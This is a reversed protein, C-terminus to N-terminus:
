FAKLNPFRMGVTFVLTLNSTTLYSPDLFTYGSSWNFQTKAYYRSGNYGANLTFHGAYEVNTFSGTGKQAKYMNHAVGLGAFVIPSIFFQTGRVVFNVGYGPLVLFGPARVYELGTQEGYRAPTDYAAPIMSGGKTGLSRYFPEMRLLFSGATKLQYESQYMSARYSYKSPNFLYIIQMGLKIEHLSPESQFEGESGSIIV